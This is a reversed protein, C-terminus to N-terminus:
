CEGVQTMGNPRSFFAHFLEQTPLMLDGNLDGMANLALLRYNSDIINTNVVNMVNAGGFADGTEIMAFDGEALNEGTTAKITADNTVVADSSQSFNYVIDEAVCSLLDCDTAQAFTSDPDPFFFDTLDLSQDEELEKNLLSFFGDSNIVNSNVVNAVNLASLANGTYIESTNRSLAKNDGTSSVIVGTTDVTSENSGTANFTYTDLDTIPDPGIESKIYNSNVDTSVEGQARADGTDVVTNAGTQTQGGTIDEPDEAEGEAGIDNGSVVPVPDGEDEPGEGGEGGEGEEGDTGESGGDGGTGEDGTTGDTTTATGDDTSTSTGDDTTTGTGDDTTTATGDDTTTATEGDNTEDGDPATDGETGDDTTTGTGGDGGSETGEGDTGETGSKRLLPLQQTKLLKKKRQSSM